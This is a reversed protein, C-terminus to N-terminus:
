PHTTVCKEVGTKHLLNPKVAVKKGDFFSKEWGNDCLVKDFMPFVTNKVNDYDYDDLNELYVKDTFVIKHEM